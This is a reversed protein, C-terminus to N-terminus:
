IKICVLTQLASPQLTGGSTYEASVKSSDMIIEQVYEGESNAFPFTYRNAENFGFAGGVNEDDFWACYRFNGDINPDLCLPSKQM